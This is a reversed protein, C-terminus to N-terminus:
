TWTTAGADWTTAGADWTTPLGNATAKIFMGIFAMYPTIARRKAIAKAQELEQPTISRWALVAARLKNRQEAQLETRSPTQISYERMMRPKGSPTTYNAFQASTGQYVVTKRNGPAIPDYVSVKGRVDLSIQDPRLM